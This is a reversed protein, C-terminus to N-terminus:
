IIRVGCSMVSTVVPRWEHALPTVTRGLTVYMLKLTDDDTVRSKILAEIKLMHSLVSFTRSVQYKEALDQIFM